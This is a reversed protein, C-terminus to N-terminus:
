SAIRICSQPIENSVKNEWLRRVLKGEYRLERLRRKHSALFFTEELKGVTIALKNAALLQYNLVCPTETTLGKNTFVLNPQNANVCWSMTGSEPKKKYDWSMKVGFEVRDLHHIQSISILEQKDLLNVTVTVLLSDWVGTSCLWFNYLDKHTFM